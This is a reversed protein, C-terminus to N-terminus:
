TAGNNYGGWNARLTRWLLVLLKVWVESEKIVQVLKFADYHGGHDVKAWSTIRPFIEKDHVHFRTSHEYFWVQLGNYLVTVVNDVVVVMLMPWMLQCPEDWM